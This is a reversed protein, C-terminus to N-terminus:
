RRAAKAAPKSGTVKSRAPAPAADTTTKDPFPALVNDGAKEAHDLMKGAADDELQEAMEFSLRFQVDDDHEIHFTTKVVQPCLGLDDIGKLYNAIAKLSTPPVSLSYPEVIKEDIDSEKLIHLRVTDKCAKGKGVAATGFKNWRCEACSTCLPKKVAEHPVLSDTDRGCAYCDPSTPNKPDYRSSYYAKVNALDLIVGEFEDTKQGDIMFQGGATSIMKGGLNSAVSATARKAFRALKEDFSNVQTSTKTNKTSTKAAM